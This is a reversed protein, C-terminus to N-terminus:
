QNNIQLEILFIKLYGYRLEWIFLCVFFEHYFPYKITVDKSENIRNLTETLIRYCKVKHIRKNSSRLTVTNTLGKNLNPVEPSLTSNQKDRGWSPLDNVTKFTFSLYRIM